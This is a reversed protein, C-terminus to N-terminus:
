YVNGIVRKFSVEKDVGRHTWTVNVKALFSDVSIYDIEIQRNFVESELPTLFPYVLGAQAYMETSNGGGLNLDYLGMDGTNSADRPVLNWEMRSAETFDRTVVYTINDEITESGALSCDDVDTVNLTNWCNATDSAFRLYNTDRINRVAEIGELALNMAVVKTGVVDNGILSTRLLGLAGATALVIVTASIVTEILSEAPRRRPGFKM